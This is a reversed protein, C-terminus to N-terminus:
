VRSAGSGASACSSPVSCASSHRARRRALAERLSAAALVPEGPEGDVDLPPATPAQLEFWLYGYPGLTLRYARTPHAPVGCLGASWRSWARSALWTWSGGAPCFAVPQGCVSDERQRLHAPLGPDQPQLPALVRHPRPRFGQFLKRLGIMHAELPASVLFRFARRWTSRVPLRLGDLLVPQVAARAARTFFRCQSRWEVAHPNRVATKRDGLNSTTAWASRTATTCSPTGPFSLLISQAARNRPPQQGAVPALRPPHGVNAQDCPVRRVRTRTPFIRDASDGCPLASTVTIPTNRSRPGV